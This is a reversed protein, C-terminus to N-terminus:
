ASYRFRRADWLAKYRMYTNADVNIPMHERTLKFDKPLNHAKRIGLRVKQLRSEINKITCQTGPLVVLLLEHIRKPQALEPGLYVYACDVIQIFQSTWRFRAKEESRQAVVTDRTEACTRLTELVEDVSSYGWSRAYNIIYNSDVTRYSAPSQAAFPEVVQRGQAGERCYLHHHTAPTNYNGAGGPHAYYGAYTSPLAQNHYLPPVVPHPASERPYCVPERAEDSMPLPQAGYVSPLPHLYSHDDHFDSPRGGESAFSSVSCPYQEPSDYGDNADGSGSVM